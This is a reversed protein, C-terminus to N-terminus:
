GARKTLKAVHAQIQKRAEAVCEERASQNAIRSGTITEAPCAQNVAADIRRSLEAKGAETTLDLDSTRLTAAGALAPPALVITSAGLAALALSAILPKKM